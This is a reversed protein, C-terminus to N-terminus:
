SANRRDSLQKWLVDRWVPRTLGPRNISARGAAVEKDRNALRTKMTEAIDDSEIEYLALYEGRGDQFAPIRYRRASVFGPTILIDPIHMGNYWDHYEPVRAPDCNQEVMNLWKGAGEKRNAPASTEYVHKFLMRRWMPFSFYESPPQTDVVRSMTTGIDNTEIEYLALYKGRGDRLDKHVYRRARVFGPTALMQPVVMEECWQNYEAEREPDCNTEVLNVWREM